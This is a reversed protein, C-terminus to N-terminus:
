SCRSRRSPRPCRPLAAGLSARAQVGGVRADAPDPRRGPERRRARGLPRAGAPQGARVAAAPGRGSLPQPAVLARRPGMHRCARGGRRRLIAQVALVRGVSPAREPAASWRPTIGWFDFRRAGAARADLIMRWVLPAAAQLRRGTEPDSVAHAYYRTGSFDFCLAAAVPAGAAEAIYLAAAHEPM